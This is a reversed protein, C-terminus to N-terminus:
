LEGARKLLETIERAKAAVEDAQVVAAAQWAIPSDSADFALLTATVDAAEQEDVRAAFAAYVFRRMGERHGLLRKSISRVQKEPGNLALERELSEILNQVQGARQRREEETLPAKPTAVTSM